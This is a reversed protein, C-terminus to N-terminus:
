ASDGIDTCSDNTKAGSLERDLVTTITASTLIMAVIFEILQDRDIDLTGRLWMTVVDITGSVVTLAALESNRDTAVYDGILEAGEAIMLQALFTIVEGRRNRLAETAQSELLLRRNRPEDDVYAVAADVTRLIRSRLEAPADSIAATVAAVGAGAFDEFAALVLEDCDSFSEYFYRDNLGARASVARVKVSGVGDEGIMDSAAEILRQRREARRQDVSQGAYISGAVQM